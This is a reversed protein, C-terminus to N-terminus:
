AWLVLGLADLPDGGCFAALALAFALAM